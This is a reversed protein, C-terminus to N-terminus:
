VIKIYNILMKLTVRPIKKRPEKLLKLQKRFFIAILNHVTNYIDVLGLSIAIRWLKKSTVERRSMNEGVWIKADSVVPEKMNHLRSLKNSKLM